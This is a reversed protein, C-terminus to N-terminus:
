KYKWCASRRFARKDGLLPLSVSYAIKHILQEQGTARLLIACSDIYPVLKRLAKKRKRVSRIKDAKLTESILKNIFDSLAESADLFEFDIKRQLLIHKEVSYIIKKIQRENFFDRYIRHLEAIINPDYGNITTWLVDHFLFRSDPLILRERSKRAFVAASAASILESYHLHERVTQVCQDHPGGDEHALGIVANRLCVLISPVDQLVDDDKIDLLRAPSGLKSSM